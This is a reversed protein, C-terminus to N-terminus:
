DEDHGGDLEGQGAIIGPRPRGAPWIGKQSYAALEEDTWNPLDLIEVIDRQDESEGAYGPQNQPLMVPPIQTAELCKMLAPLLIRMMQPNPADKEIEDMMLSKLLTQMGKWTGVGELMDARERIREWLTRSAAGGSRQIARAKAPDHIICFDSGETKWKPCRRGTQPDLIRECRKEDPPIELAGRNRPVIATPKKAAAAKKEDITRPKKKPAAGKGKAKRAVPKRKAKSEAPKQKPM